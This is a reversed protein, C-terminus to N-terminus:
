LLTSWATKIILCYFEYLWLSNSIQVGLMLFFHVIEKWNQQINCYFEKKDNIYGTVNIKVSKEFM